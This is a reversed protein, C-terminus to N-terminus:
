KFYLKALINNGGVYATSDNLFRLTYFSDDTLKNWNKGTDNSVWIGTKGVSVLQKGESRPVFQVCSQYGPGKDDSILSWSRGGDTTIAKNKSNSNVDTYDGGIIFGLQDNYFDISYGGTTEKGQILPTDFVEWKKGKDASYFVRSKKGGTTIWTHAGNVAINTDSAAFAAEGDVVPPLKECPVKSWSKGGDRTIIISLCGDTPDGMAIGEEDNWFTMSDYFVKEDAEQYVLEMSGQDGTKYLLAPSQISLMLFDDSTSAVARFNPTLSDYKIINTRVTNKNDDYLGYYGKNGAFGLNNGMVTIARISISDTLLTEVKVSKIPAIEHGKKCTSVMFFTLLVLVFAILEIHLLRTNPRTM